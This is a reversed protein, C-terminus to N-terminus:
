SDSSWTLTYYSQVVYCMGINKKDIVSHLAIKTGPKWINYKLQKHKCDMLFCCCEARVKIKHCCGLFIDFKNYCFLSVTIYENPPRIFFVIAHYISLYLKSNRIVSFPESTLLNRSKRTYQLNSKRLVWWIIGGMM